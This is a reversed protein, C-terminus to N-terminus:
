LVGLEQLTETYTTMREQIARDSGGAFVQVSFNDVIQQAQTQLRVQEPETQLKLLEDLQGEVMMFGAVRGANGTVAIYEKHAHIRGQKALAEFQEIAKTFIELGRAERGRVASGWTFVIAGTM